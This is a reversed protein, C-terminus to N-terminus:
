IAASHGKAAPFGSLLEFVEIQGERGRVQSTGLSRTHARGRVAANTQEGLLIEVGYEKGLSELRSAVNVVDGIATFSLREESGINGVFAPGSSIGIRVRTAPMTGDPREVERMLRRIADAARCAHLAHDPVDNPANWVGMICDGIFKDVTGGERHIAQTALTLFETLFPTVDAGHRETLKTFGPLDAFMVTIDRTEGGPQPDIGKATLARVIDTPVFKGFAGLSTAMRKLARSLEDLERLWTAHYKVEKLSFSEIHRLESALRGIPKAFTWNAFAASSLASVLVLGLILLALNRTNRDTTETFARRPVATMLRWGNVGLPTATVYYDEGTASTMLTAAADTSSAPRFELREAPRIVSSAIVAGSEALISAQGVASISLSALYDSLRKFDITAMVIGDLREGKRLASSAVAGPEFGNPLINVMTWSTRRNEMAARYWKSGLTVYPTTGKTREEFFIDGPILKYEDRRLWRVSEDVQDGIEVMEVRQNDLRHSGFFRGDPFAIGLWSVAPQSRLVSLFAFERNVEDDKKVAGQFLISRVIEVAAETAQFTANVERHVASAATDNLRSVIMDINDNSTRLWSFHVVAATLLVASAMALSLAVDLGLRRPLGIM